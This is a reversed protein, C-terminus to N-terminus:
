AKSKVQSFANVAFIPYVGQAYVVASAPSLTGACLNVCAFNFVELSNSKMPSNPAESPQRASLMSLQFARAAALSPYVCHQQKRGRAQQLSVHSGAAPSAPSPHTM